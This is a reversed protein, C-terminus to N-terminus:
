LPIFFLSIMVALSLLYVLKNWRFVKTGDFFGFPIMNFLALWANIKFGFSGLYQFFGGFSTIYAFVLALVVNTAPGALSIIGNKRQDVRGSIIVAGPAAFIYGFLSFLVAIFLMKNDARFEAWCNYRQAFFKHALEHLLFGSGVAIASLFFYFLFNETFIGGLMIAFALSIAFWAKGLDVLEIRSFQM